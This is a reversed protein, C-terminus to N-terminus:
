LENSCDVCRVNTVVHAYQLMLKVRDIQPVDGWAEHILDHQETQALEM